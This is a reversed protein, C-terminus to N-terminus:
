AVGTGALFRDYGEEELREALEMRFATGVEDSSLERMEAYAGDVQDLLACFRERAAAGNIFDGM